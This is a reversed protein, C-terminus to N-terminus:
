KSTQTDVALVTLLETTIGVLNAFSLHTKMARM